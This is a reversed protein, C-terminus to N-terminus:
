RRSRRGPRTRSPSPRRRAQEQVGEDDGHRGGHGRGDQEVEDGPRPRQGHALSGPQDHGRCRPAGEPAPDRHEAAVALQQLRSRRLPKAGARHLRRGVASGAPTRSRLTSSSAPPTYMLSPWIAAVRTSRTGGSTASSSRWAASGPVRGLGALRDLGHELGLEAGGDVLHEGLEVPIWQRRRRDALRMAGPQARTLAHDHLDLAGPDLVQHLAVEGGQRQDGLDRLAARRQALPHPRALHDGLEGDAQAGLEVEASLGVGHLLHSGEEGVPGRNADRPDVALQQM